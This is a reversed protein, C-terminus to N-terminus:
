LRWHNSPFRSIYFSCTRRLSRIAVPIKSSDIVPTAATFNVKAADKLFPKFASTITVVKPASTDGAEKIVTETKDEKKKVPTAAKQKVTKKSNKKQAQVSGVAFVAIFAILVIRPLYNM